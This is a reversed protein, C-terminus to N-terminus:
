CVHLRDVFGAAYPDILAPTADLLGFHAVDQPNPFERGHEIFFPSFGVTSAEAANYAIEIHYQLHLAEM